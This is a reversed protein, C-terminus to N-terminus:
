KGSEIKKLTKLTEDAAEALSSITENGKRYGFFIQGVLFNREKNMGYEVSFFDKAGFRSRKSSFDKLGGSKKLTKSIKFNDRNKVMINLRGTPKQNYMPVKFVENLFPKEPRDLLLMFMRPYKGSMDMCEMEEAYQGIRIIHMKMEAGHKQNLYYMLDLNISSKDSPKIVFFFLIISNIILVIAIPAVFFEPKDKFFYFSFALSAFILFVVLFYGLLARNAAKKRRQTLQKDIDFKDEIDEPLM